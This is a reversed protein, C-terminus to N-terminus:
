LGTVMSAVGIKSCTWWFFKQDAKLKQSDTDFFWNIGGTWKESVTLKQTKDDSQGCGNKATGVGFIGLWRKIQMFRYWWAFDTLKM